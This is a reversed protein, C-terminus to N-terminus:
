KISMLGIRSEVIRNNGNGLYKSILVERTDDSRILEINRDKWKMKLFISYEKFFDKLAQMVVNENRAEAVHIVDDKVENYLGLLSAQQLELDTM